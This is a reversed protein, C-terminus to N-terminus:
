DPDDGGDTKAVVELGTSVGGRLDIHLGGGSGHTRGERMFWAVPGDMCRGIRENKQKGVAPL